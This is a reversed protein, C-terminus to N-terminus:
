EYRHLDCRASDRMIIHKVGSKQGVVTCLVHDVNEEKPLSQACNECCKEQEELQKLALKFLELEWKWGKISRDGKFLVDEARNIEFPNTSTKLEEKAFDMHKTTGDIWGTYKDIWKVLEEKSIETKIDGAM